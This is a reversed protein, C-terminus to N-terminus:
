KLVSKTAEEKLSRIKYIEVNQQIVQFENITQNNSDSM